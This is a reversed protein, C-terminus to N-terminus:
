LGSKPNLIYDLITSLCQYSYEYDAYLLWSKGRRPNIQVGDSYVQYSLLKDLDCELNQKNSAYIIRQNTIILRGTSDIVMQTNNVIQGGASGTRLTVGKAVRFSVGASGGRINKSVVKEKKTHVDLVFFCQENEQLIISARVPTLETQSAQLKLALYDDLKMSLLPIEQKGINFYDIIQNIVQYQEENINISKALTNFNKILMPKMTEVTIDNDRAFDCIEQAESQSWYGDKVSKSILSSLAFNSKVSKFFKM